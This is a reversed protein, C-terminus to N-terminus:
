TTFVIEDDASTEVSTVESLAGAMINEANAGFRECAEAVAKADLHRGDHFRVGNRLKFRWGRGDALPGWATALGGTFGHERDVLTEFSSRLVMRSVSSVVSHPDPGELRQQIAVVLENM